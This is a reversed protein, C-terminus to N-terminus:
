KRYLSSECEPFSASRFIQFESTVGSYGPNRHEPASSGWYRVALCATLQQWALQGNVLLVVGPKEIAILEFVGQSVPLAFHYCLSINGQFFFFFLFSSLARPVLVV